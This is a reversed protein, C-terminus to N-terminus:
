EIDSSGVNIIRGALRSITPDRATAHPIFVALRWARTFSQPQGSSMDFQRARVKILRHVSVCIVKETKERHKHAARHDLPQPATILSVSM